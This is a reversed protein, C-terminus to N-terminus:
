VLKISKLIQMIDGVSSLYGNQEKREQFNDKVIEEKLDVLTLIIRRNFDRTKPLGKSKFYVSPSPENSVKM